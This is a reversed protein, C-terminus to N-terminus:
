GAYSLYFCFMILFLSRDFATEDKKILLVAGLTVALFYYSSYAIQFLDTLLPTTIQELMVTPHGRFLLYDMKILLPDIDRPNIYHVILELSDFIALISITPFILHYTWHILRGRDRFRMLLAQCLILGAYLLILFPAHELRNRFMVALITLVVLFFFNLADAPRLRLLLNFIM